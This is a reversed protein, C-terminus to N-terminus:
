VQDRFVVRIGAARFIAKFQEETAGVGAYREVFLINCESRRMQRLVAPYDDGVTPKIEVRFPMGRDFVWTVVFMVDVGRAEFTRQEVKLAYSKAKLKEAERLSDEVSNLADKLQTKFRETDPWKRVYEECEAVRRQCHRVDAESNAIHFAKIKEFQERWEYGAAAVVKLCFVDDLFLVQLANHEPTEEPEAGHNIITLHLNAFKTRFWDQGSLWELYQRDAVEVEEVTKGKHKGFPIINREDDSM